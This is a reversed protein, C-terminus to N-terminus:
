ESEQPGELAGESDLEMLDDLPFREEQAPDAVGVEADSAFKESM